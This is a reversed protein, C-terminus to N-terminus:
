LCCLRQDSQQGQPLSSNPESSQAPPSVPSHIAQHSPLHVTQHTSQRTVPCTSQRTLPNGPSQAPPNGQGQPYQM